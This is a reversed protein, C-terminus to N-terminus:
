TMRLRSNIVGNELKNNSVVARKNAGCPEPARRREPLHSTNPSRAALGKHRTSSWVHHRSIDVRTPRAYVPARVCARELEEGLEAPWGSGGNDGTQSAYGSTCTWVSVSAM